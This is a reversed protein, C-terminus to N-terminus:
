NSVPEWYNYTEDCDSITTWLAAAFRASIFFKLASVPEPSWHPDHIFDDINDEGDNDVDNILNVIKGSLSSRSTTGTRKRRSSSSSITGELDDM